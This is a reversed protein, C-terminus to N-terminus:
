GRRRAAQRSSSIGRTHAAPWSRWRSRRPRRGAPRGAARAPARRRRDRCPDVRQHDGAAGEVDVGVEVALLGPVGRTVSLSSRVAASSARTRPASARSLGTSPMQPPSCSSATASPPVRSCCMGSLTASRARARASWDARGARGCTACRGRCAAPGCRRPAGRDPDVGGVVLGDRAGALEGDDVGGRGVAHDLADLVRAVGEAEAHLPMGLEQDVRGIARDELGEDGGGASSRAARCLGLSAARPSRM